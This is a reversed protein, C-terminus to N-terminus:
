GADKDRSKWPIWMPVRKTYARWAEGYEAQMLKEEQHARLIVVLSMPLFILMAWTLFFLFAGCAALLIALYMPHRVFRYPGRKIFQHDAYLDAGTVSSVGFYRGLTLFGWIYLCIAPLYIIFGIRSLRDKTSAALSLPLPRWLFIGAAVFLVTIGLIAPWRRLGSGTGTTRGKSHGAAFLVRAVPALIAVLGTTIVIIQPLNQVISNM